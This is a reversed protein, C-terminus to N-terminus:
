FSSPYLRPYVFSFVSLRSITLVSLSIEATLLATLLSYLLPVSNLATKVESSAIAAAAIFAASSSFIDTGIMPKLLEFKVSYVVGVMVLTSLIISLSHSIATFQRSLKSFLLLTGEFVTIEPLITSLSDNM